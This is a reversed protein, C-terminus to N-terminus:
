CSSFYPRVSVSERCRRLKVCKKNKAVFSGNYTCFQDLMFIQFFIRGAHWCCAAFSYLSSRGITFQRASSYYPRRAPAERYISSKLCKSANKEDFFDSVGRNRPEKRAKPAEAPSLDPRYVGDGLRLPRVQVAIPGL